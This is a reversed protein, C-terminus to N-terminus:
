KIRRGCKVKIEKTRMYIRRFNSRDGSMGAINCTIENYNRILIIATLCAIARLIVLSFFRNRGAGCAVGRRIEGVTESLEDIEGSDGCSASRRLILSSLSTIALSFALNTRSVCVSSTESEGRVPSTQGGTWCFVCLESGGDSRCFNTAKSISEGVMIEGGIMFGSGSRPDWCSSVGGASKGAGFISSASATTSIVGTSM